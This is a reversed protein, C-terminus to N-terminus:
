ICIVCAGAFLLSVVGFRVQAVAQVLGPCPPSSPGVARGLLVCLGPDHVFPRVARSLSDHGARKGWM